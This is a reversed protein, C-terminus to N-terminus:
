KKRISRISGMLTKKLVDMPSNQLFLISILEAHKEISEESKPDVGTLKECEASLSYIATVAGLWSYFIQPGLSEQVGKPLSSQFQEYMPKIHIDILYESRENIEKGSDIIFSLFYPSHANFRMFNKLMVKINEDKGDLSSLPAEGFESKFNSFLRDVAAFWLDNKTHFHYTLLGQSVGARSAIDRTSAGVFGFESYTLLAAEIIREKATLEQNTSTGM